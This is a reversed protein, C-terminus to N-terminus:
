QWSVDPGSSPSRRGGSLDFRIWFSEQGWPKVRFGHSEYFRILHRLSGDIAHTQTLAGTIARWGQERGLAVLERLLHSGLGRGRLSSQIVIYGLYFEGLRDLGDPAPGGSQGSLHGVGVYADCGPEAVYLIMRANCVWYGGERALELRGSERYRAVIAHSPDDVSQMATPPVLVSYQDGLDAVEDQWARSLRQRRAALRGVAKGTM